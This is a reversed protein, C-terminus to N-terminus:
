EHYYFKGDTINLINGEVCQMKGSFTAEIIQPEKSVKTINITFQSGQLTGGCLYNQESLNGLQAVNQNAVAKSNNLINVEYKGEKDTNYLNINFAQQSAGSGKAGAISIMKPGLEESFHYSGFIDNDAIWDVGNIKMSLSNEHSSTQLVEDNSTESSRSKCSLLLSITM